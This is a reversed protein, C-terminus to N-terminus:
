APQKKHHGNQAGAREGQAARKGEKVNESQRGELLCHEYDEPAWKKCFEEIYKRARANKKQGNTVYRIMTDSLRLEAILEHRPKEARILAVDLAKKINVM